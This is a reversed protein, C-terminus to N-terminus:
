TDCGSLLGAILTDLQFDFIEAMDADASVAKAIDPDLADASVLADTGSYRYTSSGEELVLTDLLFFCANFTLLNHLAFGIREPAVGAGELEEILVQQSQVYLHPIKGTAAAVASLAPFQAVQRRVGTIVSKIRHQPTSGNATVEDLGQEMRDLLHNLLEDKNGVHWYITPPAVHLDGAIRRMTLAEVGETEVIRSAADLVTDPTIGQSERTKAETM